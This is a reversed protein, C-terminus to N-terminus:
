WYHYLMRNRLSQKLWIFSNRTLHKSEGAIFEKRSKYVIVDYIIAKGVMAVRALKNIDIKYLKCIEHDIKNSGHIRFEGM